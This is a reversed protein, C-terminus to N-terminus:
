GHAPPPALDPPVPEAQKKAGGCAALACSAAILVSLLRPRM